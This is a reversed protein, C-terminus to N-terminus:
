RRGSVNPPTTSRGGQLYGGQPGIYKPMPIAKGGMRPSRRIQIQIAQLEDETPQRPVGDEIVVYGRDSRGFQLGNDLEGIPEVSPQTPQIPAAVTDSVPKVESPPPTQLMSRGRKLLDDLSGAPTEGGSPPAGPATGAGDGGPVYETSKSKILGFFKETQVEKETLPPKDSIARISNLHELAWQPMKEGQKYGLGGKEVPKLLLTYFDSEAKAARTQETVSPEGSGVGPSKGRNVWQEYSGTYGDQKAFMYEKVSAPVSGDPETQAFPELAKMAAKHKQPDYSEPIQDYWEKPAMGNEVFRKMIERASQYTQNDVVGSGIKYLLGYQKARLEFETRAQNSEYQKGLHESAKRRLSFDRDANMQGQELGRRALENRAKFQEDDQRMMGRRLNMVEAEKAGKWPDVLFNEYRVPM